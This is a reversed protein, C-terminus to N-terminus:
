RRGHGRFGDAVFLPGFHAWRAPAATAGPGPPSRMALEHHIGEDAGQRSHDDRDRDADARPFYYLPASNWYPAFCYPAYAACLDYPAYGYPYTTNEHRALYDEESGLAPLSDNRASCGPMAVTFVFLAALAASVRFSTTRDWCRIMFVGENPDCTSKELRPRKCSARGSNFRAAIATSGEACAEKM